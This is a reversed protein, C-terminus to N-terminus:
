VQNAVICKVLVHDIDEVVGECVFFFVSVIPAFEKLCSTREGCPHRNWYINLWFFPICPIVKLKWVCSFHLGGEENFPQRVEWYVEKMRITLTFLLGWTLTDSCISRPIPVASIERVM